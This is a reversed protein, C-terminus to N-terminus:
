EGTLSAGPCDNNGISTRRTAPQLRSLESIREVEAAEARLERARKEHEGAEHRLRKVLNRDRILREGLADM